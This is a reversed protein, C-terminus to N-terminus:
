LEYGQEACASIFGVLAALDELDGTGLDDGSNVSRLPEAWDRVTPQGSQAAHQAAIAIREGAISERGEDLHGLAIEANACALNAEDDLTASEGSSNRSQGDRDIAVDQQSDVIQIADLIEGSDPAVALEEAIAPIVAEPASLEPQEQPVALETEAEDDAVPAFGDDAPDRFTLRDTPDFASNLAPEPDGDGTRDATDDGSSQGDGSEDDSASGQEADSDSAAADAIGFEAEEDTSCGSVFLLALVLGIM